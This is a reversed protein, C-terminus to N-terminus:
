RHPSTTPILALAGMNPLSSGIVLKIVCGWIMAVAAASAEAIPEAILSAWAAAAPGVVLRTAAASSSTDAM